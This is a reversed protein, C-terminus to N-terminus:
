LTRIRKLFRADIPTLNAYKIAGFGKYLRYIRCKKDYVKWRPPAPSRIRFSVMISSRRETSWYIRWNRYVQEATHWRRIRRQSNITESSSAPSPDDSQLLIGFHVPLGMWAKYCDSLTCKIKGRRSSMPSKATIKRLLKWFLVFFVAMWDNSISLLRKWYSGVM